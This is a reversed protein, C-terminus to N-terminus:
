NEEQSDLEISEASAHESDDSDVDLLLEKEKEVLAIYEQECVSQTIMDAGYTDLCLQIYEQKSLLYEAQAFPSLCLFLAGVGCRFGHKEVLHKNATCKELGTERMIRDRM